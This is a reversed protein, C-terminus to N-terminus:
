EEKIKYRRIYRMSFYYMSYIRKLLWPCSYIMKFCLAIRPERGEKRIKPETKIIVKRLQESFAKEKKNLSLRAYFSIMTAFQTYKVNEFQERTFVNPMNARIFQNFQASTAVWNKITRESCTETINDERFGRKYYLIDDIVYVANCKDLVRFTVDIDEYVLGDPYRIDEWL